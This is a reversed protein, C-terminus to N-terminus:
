NQYNNDLVKGCHICRNYIIACGYCLADCPTNASMIYKGCMKCYGEEFACMVVRHSCKDCLQGRFEM